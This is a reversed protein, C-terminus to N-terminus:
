KSADRTFALGPENGKAKAVLKDGGSEINLVMPEKSGKAKAADMGMFKTPTLTVTSGSTTWAGELPFMALQMTFTNDQKLELSVNGMLQKAFAEAMAASPDNNSAAPKPTQLVEGKWKGVVSHRACGCCLLAAASVVVLALTVMSSM